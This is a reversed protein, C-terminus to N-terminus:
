FQFYIFPRYEIRVFALALAVALGLGVAYVTSPLKEAQTPLDSKMAVWHAAALPVLWLFYLPSLTTAGASQFTLFAKSVDFAQTWTQSRFFILTFSFWYLTMLMGLRSFTWRIAAPVTARTYVRHAILGLGNLGGWVIFNTGAGHWLGSLLM